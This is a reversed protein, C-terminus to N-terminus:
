IDAEYVPLTRSEWIAKSRPKASREKSTVYCKKLLRQFDGPTHINSLGFFRDCAKYQEESISEDYSTFLRGLEERDKKASSNAVEKALGEEKADKEIRQQFYYHPKNLYVSYGIHTGVSNSISVDCLEFLARQRRLFDENERFGCTTVMFGQNEYYDVVRADNLIDQYFLCVLVTQFVREAQIRKIEEVFEDKDFVSELNKISHSPIVLLTKGLEGKLRSLEEQDLIPDAYAIYPGIAHIAYPCKERLKELRYESMTIVSYFPNSEIEEEMFVDGFYLGHEIMSRVKPRYEAYSRFISSHGYFCNRIYADRIRGTGQGLITEVDLLNDRVSSVKKKRHQPKLFNRINTLAVVTKMRLVPPQVGHNIVYVFRDRRSQGQPAQFSVEALRESGIMAMAIPMILYDMKQYYTSLFLQFLFLYLVLSKGVIDGEKKFSLKRFCYIFPFEFAIFGILGADALVQFFNNHGTIGYLNYNSISLYGNGFVPNLLFVKFAYQNLLIRADASNDSGSEAGMFSSFIAIIRSKYYAMFPLQLFAIGLGIVGVIIGAHILRKKKTRDVLILVLFSTVLLTLGNSISGTLLILGVFLLASVICAAIQLKSKNRYLLSVSIVAYVSLMRALQNLDNFADGLRKQSSYHIIDNRYYFLFVFGFAIGGLLISVFMRKISPASKAHEYIFFSIAFMLIISKPFTALAHNVIQSIFVALLFLLGFLPYLGFYVKKDIVAIKLIVSLAYLGALAISIYNWPYSNSFCPISFSFLGLFLNPLENIVTKVARSSKM